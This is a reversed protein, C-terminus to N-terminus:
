FCDPKKAWGTCLTNNLMESSLSCIMESIIKRAPVLLCFWVFVLSFLYGLCCTCNDCWYSFHHTAIARIDCLRVPSHTGTNLYFTRSNQLTFGHLLLSHLVSGLAQLSECFWGCGTASLMLKHLKGPVLLKGSMEGVEWKEHCIKKNGSLELKWSRWDLSLGVVAFYSCSFCNTCRM